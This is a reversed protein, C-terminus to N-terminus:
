IPPPLWHSLQGGQTFKPYKQQKQM